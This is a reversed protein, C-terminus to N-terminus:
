MRSCIRTFETLIYVAHCCNICTVAICIRAAMVTKAIPIVDFVVVVVVFVALIGGGEGEAAAVSSGTSSGVPVCTQHVGGM